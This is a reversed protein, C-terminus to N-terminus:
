GTTASYTFSARGSWGPTGAELIQTELMGGVPVVVTSTGTPTCDTSAAPINCTLFANKNFADIYFSMPNVAPTSLHVSFNALTVQSTLPAAEWTGETSNGAAIGM